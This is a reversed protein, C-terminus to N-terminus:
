CLDKKHKPDPPMSDFLMFYTGTTYHVALPYKYNQEIRGPPVATGFM